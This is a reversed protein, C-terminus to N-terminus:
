MNCFLDVQFKSMSMGYAIFFTPGIWEKVNMYASSMSFCNQSNKKIFVKTCLYLFM